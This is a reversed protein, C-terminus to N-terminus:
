MEVAGAEDVAVKEGACGAKDVAVMEGAVVNVVVM